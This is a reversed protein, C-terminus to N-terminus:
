VAALWESHSIEPTTDDKATFLQRKTGSQPVGRGPGATRKLHTPGDATRGGDRCQAIRGGNM